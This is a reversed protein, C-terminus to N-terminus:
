VKIEAFLDESLAAAMTADAAVFMRAAADLSAVVKAVLERSGAGDFELAIM